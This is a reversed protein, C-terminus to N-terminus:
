KYVISIAVPLHDSFGGAYRYGRWTGAPYYGKYSLDEKLISPNDIIRYSDKLYCIGKEAQLMSGSIIFQDFLYWTGRYKYTGPISNGAKSVNILLDNLSAKDSQVASLITSVSVSQPEDNMDGMIVIKKRPGLSDIKMKIFSAVEKRRKDSELVGGRRSPLHCAIIHLTDTGTSLAAYLVARTILYTGKETVPEWSESHLLRSTKKNYLLATKIGRTDNGGSAVFDYEDRSLGTFTCLDNLVSENEIECLGIIDPCKMDTGGLALVKFINNLKRFYKWTNWNREAYPLFEDDDLDSDITDFLNEVNYFMIDTKEGTNHYGNGGTILVTFVIAPLVLIHIYRNIILM